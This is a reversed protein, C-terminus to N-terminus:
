DNEDVGLLSQLVRNRRKRQRKVDYERVAERYSVLKDLARTWAASEVPLHLYGSRVSRIADSVPCVRECAGCYICFREDLVVSEGDYTIAHTPCIDACIQCGEPCLSVNLRTRGLYPRTIEFGGEPGEEMCRTCNYCRSRDLTVNRVSTVEGAVDREVDASLAGSPCDELYGVDRSTELPAQDVSMRRILMPFAKGKIVPIEPEGNVTMTYAHTPCMAVCQGCFICKDDDIDVRPKVVLRGDKTVAESLSIAEKPCVKECVDCGCCLAHTLTLEYRRTVMPRLLVLREESTTKITKGRGPM